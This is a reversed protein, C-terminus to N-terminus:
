IESFPLCIIAIKHIAFISLISRVKASYPSGSTPHGNVTVSIKHEGVSRPVFDAKFVGDAVQSVQAPISQGIPGSEMHDFKM